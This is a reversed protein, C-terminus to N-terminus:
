RESPWGSKKPTSRSSSTIMPEKKMAKVASDVTAYATMIIVPIEDKFKKVRELLELGDMGPMKLDVLLVDWREEQVKELAQFGDEVAVVGYGDERLWESLSDRMIIEDDVILIRVDKRM